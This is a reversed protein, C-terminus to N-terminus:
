RGNRIVERNYKVAHVMTAKFFAYPLSSQMELLMKKKIYQTKQKVTWQPNKPFIFNKIQELFEPQEFLWLIYDAVYFQIENALQKNDPHYFNPSMKWDPNDEHKEFQNAIEKYTLDYIEKFFDYEYTLLRFINLIKFHM